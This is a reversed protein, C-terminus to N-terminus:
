NKSMMKSSYLKEYMGTIEDMQKLLKESTMAVILPITTENKRKLGHYFLKWQADALELKQTIEKTNETANSLEAMAGRFENMARETEDTIASNNIGWSRLMYFKALRQTLMRQRGSINVLRGYSTGSLDQLLLVVKHTARLLQDSSELLELATKKNAPKTILARHPKWLTEVHRLSEKIKKNKTFANLEKLQRSFLQASANLQKLAEETQIDSGIMIYSKLMRQTLMRQKGAKNIATSIDAIEAFCISSLAFVLIGFYFRICM